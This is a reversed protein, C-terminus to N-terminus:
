FITINTKFNFFTSSPWKTSGLTNLQNNKKGTKKEKPHPCLHQEFYRTEISSYKLYGTASNDVIKDHNHAVYQSTQKDFRAHQSSTINHNM